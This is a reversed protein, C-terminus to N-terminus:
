GCKCTKYYWVYFKYHEVNLPGQHRRSPTFLRSSWIFSKGWFSSSWQCLRNSRGQHASSCPGTLSPGPATLGGKGTFRCLLELRRKDELVFKLEQTARTSSWSCPLSGQVWLCACGLLDLSLLTFTSSILVLSAFWLPSVLIQKGFNVVWWPIAVDGKLLKYPFEGV